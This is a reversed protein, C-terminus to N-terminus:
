LAFVYVGREKRKQITPPFELFLQWPQFYNLKEVMHFIITQGNQKKYDMLFFELVKLKTHNESQSISQVVFQRALLSFNISVFFRHVEGSFYSTRELMLKHRPLKMFLRNSFKPNVIM